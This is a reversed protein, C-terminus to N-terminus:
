RRPGAPRGERRWPRTPARCRRWRWGRRSPRAPAPCRRRGSRRGPQEARAACRQGVQPGRRRLPRLGLQDHPDVAHLPLLDLAQQVGRGAVADVHTRWSSSPARRPDHRPRRRGRRAARRGAHLVHVASRGPRSRRSRPRRRRRLTLRSTRLGSPIRSTVLGAGGLVPGRGLRQLLGAVLAGCRARVSSRATDTASWSSKARPYAPTPGARASRSHSPRTCRTSSVTSPVRALSGPAPRSARGARRARGPGRDRRRRQVHQRPSRAHNPTRTSSAWSGAWSRWRTTSATIAASSAANPARPGRRRPARHRTRAHEHDDPGHGTDGGARHRPQEREGVTAPVAPAASGARRRGPARRRQGRLRAAVLVAGSAGACSSASAAPPTWIPTITRHSAASCPRSPAPAPAAARGRARAPRRTRRASRARQSSAIPPSSSTRSRSM